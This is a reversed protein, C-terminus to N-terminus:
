TVWEFNTMKLDGNIRTMQVRWRFTQVITEEKPDPNKMQWGYVVIATGEDPEAKTVAESLITTKTDIKQDKVLGVAQKMSDQMQQQAKGSTKDQLTKLAGDVNNPNLTTLNVIMQSAFDSYEARLDNKTDYRNIGVAFIVSVAVCAVIVVGCVSALVIRKTRSSDTGKYRVASGDGALRDDRSRRSAANRARRRERYTLQDGAVPVSQEESDSKGADGKEADSKDADSKDADSKDADSKDADSVGTGGNATDGKDKEEANDVADSSPEEAPAAAAGSTASSPPQKRGRGLPAKRVPAKRVPARRVPRSPASAQEETNEPSPDPTTDEPKDSTM